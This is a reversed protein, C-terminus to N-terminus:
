SSKGTIGGKTRRSSSRMMQFAKAKKKVEVTQNHREIQQKETTAEGQIRKMLKEAADSLSEPEHGPIPKPPDWIGFYSRVVKTKLLGQSVVHYFLSPPSDSV